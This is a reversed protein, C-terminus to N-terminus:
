LNFYFQFCIYVNGDYETEPTSFVVSYNVLSTPGNYFLLITFFAIVGLVFFLKKFFPTELLSLMTNSTIESIFPITFILFFVFIYSPVTKTQFNYFFKLVLLIIKDALHVSFIIM